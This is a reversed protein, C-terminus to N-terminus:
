LLAITLLSELKVTVDVALVALFVMLVNVLVLEVTAIEVNLDEVSQKETLAFQVNINITTPQTEQLLNELKTLLLVSEEVSIVALVVLIVLKVFVNALKKTVLEVLHEVVSPRETLAFLASSPLLQTLPQAPLLALHSTTDLLESVVTATVALVELGDMKANVSPLKDTVTVVLQEVVSKKKTLASLVNRLLLTTNDMRLLFVMLLLVSRETAVVAPVVLGDM